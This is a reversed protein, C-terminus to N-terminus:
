ERKEGKPFVRIVLKYKGSKQGRVIELYYDLGGAEALDQSVNAMHALVLDVDTGEYVVESFRLSIFRREDHEVPM